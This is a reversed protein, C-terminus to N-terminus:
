FSCDEQKVEIGMNFEGTFEGQISVNSKNNLVTM